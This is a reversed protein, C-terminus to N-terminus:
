SVVKGAVQEGAKAVVVGAAVAMLMNVDGAGFTTFTAFKLLYKVIEGFVLVAAVAVLATLLNKAM